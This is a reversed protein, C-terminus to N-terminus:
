SLSDSSSNYSTSSSKRKKYEEYSEEGPYKIEDNIYDTYQGSELHSEALEDMCDHHHIVKKSLKNMKKVTNRLLRIEAKMTNIIFENQENERKADALEEKLQTVEYTCEKSEKEYDLKSKSM